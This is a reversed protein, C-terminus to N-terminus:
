GSTVPCGTPSSASTAWPSGCASRRSGVSRRRASGVVDILGAAAHLETDVERGARGFDRVAVLRVDARTIVAVPGRRDGVEMGDLPDVGRWRGHGGLARSDSTGPRAPAMWRRSIANGALFRDLADEGGVRRLPREGLDAGPGTDDQTGDRALALLGARRGTPSPTPRTGLRALRASGEVDTRLDPPLIRHPWADSMSDDISTILSKAEVGISTRTAM